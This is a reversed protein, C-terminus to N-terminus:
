HTHKEEFASFKHFYYSQINTPVTFVPLQVSFPFMRTGVHRLCYFSSHPNRVRPELVPKKIHKMTSNITLSLQNLLPFANADKDLSVHSTSIGGAPTVKILRLFIYQDWFSAIHLVHYILLNITKVSYIDVYTNIEMLYFLQSHFLNFVSAQVYVFVCVSTSCQLLKIM